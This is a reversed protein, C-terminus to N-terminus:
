KFDKIKGKIMAKSVKIDEDFIILNADKGVEISGKINDVEIAKAPNLIAM